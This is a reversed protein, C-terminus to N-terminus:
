VKVFLVLSHAPLGHIPNQNAVEVKKGNIKYLIAMPGVITQGIKQDIGFITPHWKAPNYKKAFALLEDKNAPRSEICDKEDLLLAPSTNLQLSQIEVEKVDDKSGINMKRKFLRLTIIKLGM